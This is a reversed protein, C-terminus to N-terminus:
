MYKSIYSHMRKYVLFTVISVVSGKMLNFPVAGFIIYSDIDKIFPNIEACLSIIVDIPMTQSYFPILMFKNALAGVVTIAIVGTLCAIIAGKKTKSHKYVMAASAAFSATIIFDALEGVGGTSTSFFHIFSKVAAMMVTTAPGFIFGCILIPVSSLDLKLFPPMFPLPIELFMLITAIATMVSAVVLRRTNSSARAPKQNMTNTTQM